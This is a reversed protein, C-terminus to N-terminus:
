MKSGEKSKPKNTDINKGNSMHILTTLTNMNKNCKIKLWTM